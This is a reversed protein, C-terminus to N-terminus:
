KEGGHKRPRGRPAAPKSAKIAGHETMSLAEAIQRWSYDLARAELILEARRAPMKQLRDNFSTLIALTDDTMHVAYRM